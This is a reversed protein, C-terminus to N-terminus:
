KNKTIHNETDNYYINKWDTTLITIIEYLLVFLSVHYFKLNEFNQENANVFSM